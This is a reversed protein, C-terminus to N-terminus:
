FGIRKRHWDARWAIDCHSAANLPNIGETFLWKAGTYHRPLAFFDSALDRQSRM